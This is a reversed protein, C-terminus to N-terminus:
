NTILGRSTLSDHRWIDGSSTSTSATDVVPLGLHRETSLTITSMQTMIDDAPAPSWIDNVPSVRTSISKEPEWIDNAHQGSGKDINTEWLKSIKNENIKSENENLIMKATEEATLATMSEVERDAGGDNGGGGTGINTGRSEFREPTLYKKSETQVWIEKLQARLKESSYSPQGDNKVSRSGMPESQSIQRRPKFEEVALTYMGSASSEAYGSTATSVRISGSSPSGYSRYDDEYEGFTTGNPLSMPGCSQDSEKTKNQNVPTFYTTGNIVQCQLNEDGLNEHWTQGERNDASKDASLAFLAEELSMQDMEADLGTNSGSKRNGRRRRTRRRRETSASVTSSSRARLTGGDSQSTYEGKSNPTIQGEARARRARSKSISSEDKIGNEKERNKKFPFRHKQPKKTESHTKPMEIVGVLEDQSDETNNNDKQEITINNNMNNRERNHNRRLLIPATQSRDRFETNGNTNGIEVSSINEGGLVKKKEVIEKRLITPRAQRPIKRDEGRRTLDYSDFVQSLNKAVFRGHGEEPKFRAARNGNTAIAIDRPRSAASASTTSSPSGTSSRPTSNATSDACSEGNEYEDYSEVM